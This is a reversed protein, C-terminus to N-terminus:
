FWWAAGASLLPAWATTNPAVYVEAGAAALLRLNQLPAVSVVAAAGGGFVPAGPFTPALVARLEASVEVTQNPSWLVHGATLKIAPYRSVTVGIGGRWANWGALLRLEGGFVRAAPDVVALAGIGFQVGTSLGLPRLGRRERLADRLLAGHERLAESVETPGAVSTSRRALAEGTRTAVLRASVVLEEGVRGVTAQAVYEAGLGGAIETLCSTDDKCGLLQRSRELGILTAMDQATMMRATQRDDLAASFLETLARTDLDAGAGANVEVDLVLVRPLEEGATASLVLALVLSTM